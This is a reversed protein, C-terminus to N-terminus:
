CGLIPWETLSLSWEKLRTEHYRGGDLIGNLEDLLSPTYQKIAKECEKALKLRNESLFPVKIEIKRLYRGLNVGNEYYDGKFTREYVM